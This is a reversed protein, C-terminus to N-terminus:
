FDSHLLLLDLPLDLRQYVVADPDLSRLEALELVIGTVQLLGLRLPVLRKLNALRCLITQPQSLQKGLRCQDLALVVEGFLECSVRKVAGSRVMVRDDRAAKAGDMGQM